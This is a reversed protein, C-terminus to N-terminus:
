PTREADYDSVYIPDAGRQRVLIGALCGRCSQQQYEPDGASARAVTRGRESTRRRHVNPTWYGTAGVSDCRALLSPTQSRIEKHQQDQSCMTGACVAVGVALWYKM